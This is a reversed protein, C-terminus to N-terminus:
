PVSRLRRSCTGALSWGCRRHARRGRRAQDSQVCSYGTTSLLQVAPETHVDSRRIRTALWRCGAPDVGSGPSRAVGPSRFRTGTLGRKGRPQNSAPATPVVTMAWLGHACGIKGRRDGAQAVNPPTTTGNVGAGRTENPRSRRHDRDRISSGAGSLMRSASRSDPVSGLTRSM